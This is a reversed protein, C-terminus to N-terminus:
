DDGDSPRNPRQLNEPVITDSIASEPIDGRSLAVIVAKRVMGYAAEPSAGQALPGSVTDLSSIRGDANRDTLVLRPTEGGGTEHVVVELSRGYNRGEKVIVRTRGLSTPIETRYTCIGDPCIPARNEDMVEGRTFPRIIGHLTKRSDFIIVSDQVQCANFLTEIDEDNLAICGETWDRERSQGFYRFVGGGHIAIGGGLGTDHPAPRSRRVATYIRRYERPSIVGGALGKEANALNPYSLGLALHFRSKMKKYAVFYHGEPTACDFARHKDSDPDIGFAAPFAATRKGDTFLVVNQKAKDIVVIRKATLTAGAPLATSASLISVSFITVANKLILQSKLRFYTLM